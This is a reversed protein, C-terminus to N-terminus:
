VSNAHRLEPPGSPLACGLEIGRRQVIVSVPRPIGIREEVLQRREHRPAVSRRDLNTRARADGCDWEDIPPKPNERDLLAWRHSLDECGLQMLTDLDDDASEFVPYWVPVDVKHDCEVRPM